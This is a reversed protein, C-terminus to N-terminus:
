LRSEDGTGIPSRRLLVHAAAVAAHVDVDNLPWITAVHTAVLEDDVGQAILGRATIVPALDTGM